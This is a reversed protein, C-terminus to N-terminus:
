PRSKYRHTLPAPRSDSADDSLGLERVLRVFLGRFDRVILLAPHPKSQGFRDQYVGGDKAVVAEAAAITDLCRCAQRLVEWQHADLKWARAVTRWYALGAGDLEKPTKM